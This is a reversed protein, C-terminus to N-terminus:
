ITIDENDPGKIGLENLLKAGKENMENEKNSTIFANSKEKEIEIEKEKKSEKEKEKERTVEPQLKQRYSKQRNYESQYKSWNNIEIINKGHISIRGSEHLKWKLKKWKKVSVQMIEAISSDPYGVNETLKIFGIDGYNSSGAITLLTIWCGRLELSENELSGNLWKECHIKIWTRSGM